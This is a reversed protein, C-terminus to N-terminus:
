KFILEAQPLGKFWECLYRWEQMKHNERQNVISKLQLYNTTMRATLMIGMPCNAIIINFINEKTLEIEEMNRLQYYVKDEDEDYIFSFEELDIWDEYSSGFRPVYNEIRNKRDNKIYYIFDDYKNYADVLMEITEVTFSSVYKNCSKDIDLKLIRHMKSQSSVYDIFHYRDLQRWIYEPVQLDFQLTIGKQKCDHGSGPIANGLKCARKYHKIAKELNFREVRPTHEYSKCYEGFYELEGNKRAELAEERTEYMGLTIQRKNVTIYARWKKRDKRYSVGLCKNNRCNNTNDTIRLNQKRNDFTNGNIHDVVENEKADLIIRHLLNNFRNCRAYGKSCCFKYDKIKLIDECDILFEGTINGENNRTIIKAYDNELVIDNEIRRHYNQIEKNRDLVDIIEKLGNDLWYRLNEIEFDMDGTDTVMPYSSAIISEELGYVRANDVKIIGEKEFGKVIM